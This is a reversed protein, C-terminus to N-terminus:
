LCGYLGVKVKSHAVSRIAALRLQNGEGPVERALRLVARHDPGAEDGDV